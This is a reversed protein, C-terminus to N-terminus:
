DKGDVTCNQLLYQMLIIICRPLVCHLSEFERGRLHSDGGMVVPGPSPGIVFM